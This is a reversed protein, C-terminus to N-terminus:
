YRLLEERLCWIPVIHNHSPEPVRLDTYSRMVTCLHYRGSHPTLSTFPDQARLLLPIQGGKLESGM